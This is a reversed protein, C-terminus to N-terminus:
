DPSRAEMRSPAAALGLSFASRPSSERYLVGWRPTEFVALNVDVDGNVSAVIAALLLGWDKHLSDNRKPYFWVVNGVMPATM